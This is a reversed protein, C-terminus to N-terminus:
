NEKMHSLINQNKENSFSIENSMPNQTSLEEKNLVQFTNQWKRRTGHDNLSHKMCLINTRERQM